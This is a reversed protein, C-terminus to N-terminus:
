QRVGFKLAYPHYAGETDFEIAGSSYLSIMVRRVVSVFFRTRIATSTAFYRPKLVNAWSGCRSRDPRVWPHHDQAPPAVVSETAM